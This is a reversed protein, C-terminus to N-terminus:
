MKSPYLFLKVYYYNTVFFMIFFTIHDICNSLDVLVESM